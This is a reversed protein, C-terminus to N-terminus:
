NKLPLEWSFDEVLQDTEQLIICDFWLYGLSSIHADANNRLM